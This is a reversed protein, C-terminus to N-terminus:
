IRHLSLSSTNMDGLGWIKCFFGELMDRGGINEGGLRRRNLEKMDLEGCRETLVTESVVCSPFSILFDLTLITM